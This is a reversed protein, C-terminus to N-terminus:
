PDMILIRDCLSFSPDSPSSVPQIVFPGGLNGTVTSGVLVGGQVIVKSLGEGYFASGGSRATITMSDVAANWAAHTVEFRPPTTNLAQYGRNIWDSASASKFRLSMANLARHYTLEFDVNGSPISFSPGFSKSVLHGPTDKDIVYGWMQGTGSSFQVYCSTPEGALTPHAHWGFGVKIDGANVRGSLQITDYNLGQDPLPKTAPGGVASSLSEITYSQQPFASADSSSMLVVPPRVPTCLYARWVYANNPGSPSIGGDTFVVGGYSTGVVLDSATQEGALRLAGNTVISVPPSVNSGSGIVVVGRQKALPTTCDIYYTDANLLQGVNVVVRQMGTVDNPWREVKIARNVAPDESPSLTDSGDFEIVESKPYYKQSAYNNDSSEQTLFYPDMMWSVALGPSLYKCGDGAIVLSDGQSWDEHSVVYKSTISGGREPAGGTIGYPFLAVGQIAMQMDCRPANFKDVATLQIQSSPIERLHLKTTNTITPLYQQVAEKELPDTPPNNQWLRLETSMDNGDSAKLDHPVHRLYFLPSTPKPAPNKQTFSSTSFWSPIVPLSINTTLEFGQEQRETRTNHTLNAKLLNTDSSVFVNQSNTMMRQRIIAQIIKDVNHPEIEKLETENIRLQTRSLNTYWNLTLAMVITIVVILGVVFILVAGRERRSHRVYNLPPKM